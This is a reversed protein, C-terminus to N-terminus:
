TSMHLMDVIPQAELNFSDKWDPIGFRRGLYDLCNSMKYIFGLTREGNNSRAPYAYTPPSPGGKQPPEVRPTAGRLIWERNERFNRLFYGGIKRIRIGSTYSMSAFNIRDNICADIGLCYEIGYEFLLSQALESIVPIKPSPALLQIASAMMELKTLDYLPRPRSPPLDEFWQHLEHWKPWVYSYPDPMPDRGSQHLDQWIASQTQRILFHRWGYEYPRMWVSAEPPANPLTTDLLSAQVDVNCANDSFSLARGFAM